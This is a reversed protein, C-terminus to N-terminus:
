RMVKWAACYFEAQIVHERIAQVYFVDVPDNWLKGLTQIVFYQEHQSAYKIGLTYKCRSCKATYETLRADINSAHWIFDEVEVRHGVSRLVAVPYELNLGKNIYGAKDAPEYCFEYGSYGGATIFRPHSRDVRHGYTAM